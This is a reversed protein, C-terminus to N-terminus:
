ICVVYTGEERRATHQQGWVQVRLHPQLRGLRPDSNWTPEGPGLPYAFNPSPSNSWIELKSSRPWWESGICYSSQSLPPVPPRFDYSLYRLRSRRKTPNMERLYNIMRTLPDAWTTGAPHRLFSAPYLLPCPCSSTEQRGPCVDIQLGEKRGPCLKQRWAAQRQVEAGLWRGASCKSIDLLMGSRRIM